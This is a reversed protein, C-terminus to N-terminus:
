EARVSEPRTMRELGPLTLGVVALAAALSLTLVGALSADPWTIAPSAALRLILQAVAIGLVASALAVAVLPVGAQLLVVVRLRGVSMGASRLLAFQRRRELMATTVAVALSCGALVLSGILGLEVVRGFEIYMAEGSGTEEAIRAIATPAHAAAATRVREAADSSGDTDVYLYSAGIGDLGGDIASADVVFTALRSMTGQDVGLAATSSPEIVLSRAARPEGDVTRDPVFDYTGPTAAGTESYVTANGCRAGPLELVAVLEPCSAVWALVPSGDLFVEGGAVQVVGEVGATSELRELLPQDPTTTGFPLVIAVHGERVISEVINAQVRAFSVFTFFASAVFVAMVVGAIAGFSGRPDDSLRRAALLTAAGGPGRRLAEGVLATLWPGALAIGLVIGGFALGLLVTWAEPQGTNRSLPLLVVLAVVSASLPALRLVSPRPPSHRRQVGLPTVVIRRLTVVATVVGVVPVLAVLSVAQVLPPAIAEPFWTAEDLPVLAVFPRFAFFLVVGLVAGIACPIVAEIAALRAVQRPTAGVLRLAALRQERRAASLRTATGVFVVVPVLAGVVAFAILLVLIPPLDPVRPETPFEDVMFAGQDRLVAEDVGVVAVLEAPSRLAENGIQGVIPGVRDALQDAPVEAMLRALAPSVFAEGPAPLRPIGPPVPADASVPALAVRVLPQGRFRDAVDRMLVGTTAPEREALLIEANRWASRVLRDNLAPQFSLAFLLIATGLGVALSTLAVAIVAGRGGATALRVGLELPTADRVTV